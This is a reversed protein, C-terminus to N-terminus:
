ADKQLAAFWSCRTQATPIGNVSTALEGAM